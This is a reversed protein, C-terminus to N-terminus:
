ASLADAEAQELTMKGVDDFYLISYTDFRVRDGKEPTPEIVYPVIENPFSTLVTPERSLVEWKGCPIGYEGLPRRAAWKVHIEVVEEKIEVREVPGYTAYKMDNLEVYGKPNRDVVEQWDIKLM